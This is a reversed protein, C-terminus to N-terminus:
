DLDEFVSNVLGRRGIAKRLRDVDQRLIERSRDSEEALARKVTAGSPYREIEDELPKDTPGSFEVMRGMKSIRRGM